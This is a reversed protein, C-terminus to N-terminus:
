GIGLLVDMMEDVTQLVRANAAYAKEVVLLNQLEADTDVGRSLEANQAETFTASAFSLRAEARASQSGIWSSLQSAIGEFAAAQPFSGSAPLSVADLAGRLATLTTADGVPGLVTAGIGDRIRSPDGGQAPDVAANVSIRNAIGLENSPDFRAGNDTFLGALSAGLTPDVAPDQLREILNRTLADLESQADTGLDDRISFQAALTGGRLPGTDADTSLARGNVSLGSLTGNALTQFPTVLSSASFSFEAPKGDLLIAGGESLLTVQGNPRPIERLPVIANVTDIIVQRQDVLSATDLGQASTTAIQQNLTAVDRLSQNLQEIQQGISQDAASRADSVITAAVNIGNALDVAAFAVAELRPPADPTSAAQVLSAELEAVRGTLSAPDDPTGIAATVQSLFSATLEAAAAQAEAGRRAAIVVMDDARVTGTVGVGANVDSSALTVSRKAYGPTSANAVNTSITESVRGFAQLGSLAGNLAANLSM